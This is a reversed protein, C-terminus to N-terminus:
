RLQVGAFGDVAQADRGVAQQGQKRKGRKGIGFALEQDLAEGDAIKGGAAIQGSWVCVRM